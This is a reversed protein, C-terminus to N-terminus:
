ARRSEKYSRIENLYRDKSEQDVFCARGEDEAIPCEAPLPINTKKFGYKHALDCLKVEEPYVPIEEIVAKLKDGMRYLSIRNM